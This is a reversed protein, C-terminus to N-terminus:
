SKPDEMARQFDIDIDDPVNSERVYLLFQRKAKASALRLQSGTGCSVFLQGGKQVTAYNGVTTATEVSQILDDLDQQDEPENAEYWIDFDTDPNSM